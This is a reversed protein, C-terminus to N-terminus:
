RAPEREGDEVLRLFIESDLAARDGTFVFILTSQKIKVLTGVVKKKQAARQSRGAAGYTFLDVHAVVRKKYRVNNLRMELEVNGFGAHELRDLKEDISDNARGLERELRQIEAIYPAASLDSPSMHLWSM